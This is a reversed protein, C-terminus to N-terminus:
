PPIGDEGPAKGSSLQKIAKATEEVTPPQDLEEIEPSQPIEAIAEESITSQRNLLQNFHQAWRETILSPEKIVTHGDLDLLPSTGRSSPGYVAKLESFFKKINKTDAAEQLEQTRDRWWNDKMERLKAQAKQKMHNYRDKRAKSDKNNAYEIHLSHLEDLLATVSVDNEDFWGKHKKKAYGLSDASAQYIKKRLEEWHSAEDSYETDVLDVFASAINDRLTAQAESTALKTVDLKKTRQVRQHQRSLKFCISVKSKLLANDSHCTSAKAARTLKGDHWDRQTIIIFDIQHWHGSRPHRWTTKFSDKQTYLTNTIVLQKEACLTLLLTGNSNEKGVGHHGLVKQWAAHDSGVRANFDGLLFLKDSRPVSQIINDLEEYFEEKAQDSYAMTPAYASIFTVFGSNVKLRMIALRDSIGQPLKHLLKLHQNRIAFGVGSKRAESAPKGSWFFTYGCGHEELQSTDPLRTESLAAIDINYRKLAKAVVATRRELNNPNDQLTRVNWAAININTKGERQKRKIIIRATGSFQIILEGRRVLLNCTSHAEKLVGKIM